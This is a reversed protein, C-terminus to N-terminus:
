NIIHIIIILTSLLYTFLFLNSTFFHAFMLEKIKVFFSLLPCVIFINFFTIKMTKLHAFM